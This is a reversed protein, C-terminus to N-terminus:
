STKLNNARTLIQNFTTQSVGPGKGAVGAWAATGIVLLIRAYTAQGLEGDAVLPAYQSEVYPFTGTITNLAQQLRKVNDGASGIHLPFSDDKVPAPNVINFANDVTGATDKIGSGRLKQFLASDWMVYVLLIVVLVVILIIHQKKM